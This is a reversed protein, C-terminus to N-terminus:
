PQKMWKEMKSFELEGSELDESSSETISLDDSQKLNKEVPENAKKENRTILRTSVQKFIDQNLLSQDDKFDTDNSNNDGEDEDDTL